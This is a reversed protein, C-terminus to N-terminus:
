KHLPNENYSLFGLSLFSWSKMTSQLFIQEVNVKSPSLIKVVSPLVCVQGRSWLFISERDELSLTIFVGKFLHDLVFFFFVLWHRQECSMYLRALDM